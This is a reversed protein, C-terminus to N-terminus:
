ENGVCVQPPEHFQLHITREDEEIQFRRPDIDHMVPDNLNGPETNSRISGFFDPCSQDIRANGNGGPRRSDVVDGIGVHRTLRQEAVERFSNM